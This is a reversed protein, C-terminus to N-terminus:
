REEFRAGGLINEMAPSNGEHCAYELMQYDDNRALTIAAKWPAIWTNPDNVIVEYELTGADIQTFRETVHLMESHAHGRIASADTFNTTDVVLTNGEWRGRANGMWQRIGSGLAPRGDLPIVRVDHIMEYLIVVYGPIQAIQYANNYASPFTSAPVGRTICRVWPDINIYSDFIMSCISDIRADAAPTLSPLRGDGPEVILGQRGSGADVSTESWHSPPGLGAGGGSDPAESGSPICSGTGGLLRAPRSGPPGPAELQMGTESLKYNTWIGQLDVDGWATRVPTWSEAQSQPNLSPTLPQGSVAMPTILVLAASVALGSKTTVFRNAM